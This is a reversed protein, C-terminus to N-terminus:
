VSCITPLTQHTYSVAGRSHVVLPRVVTVQHSAGSMPRSPAVVVVQGHGSAVEVLAAIGPADIGDDNTVLIKM